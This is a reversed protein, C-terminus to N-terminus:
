GNQQEQAEIVLRGKSVTVSAFSHGAFGAEALWDGKLEICPVETLLEFVSKVRESTYPIQIYDPEINVTRQYPFHTPPPTVKKM